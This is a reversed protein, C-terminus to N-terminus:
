SPKKLKKMKKGERNRSRFFVASCPKKLAFTCSIFYFGAQRESCADRASLTLCTIDKQKKIM